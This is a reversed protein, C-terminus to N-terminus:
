YCECEYNMATQRPSTNAPANLRGFLGRKGCADACRQRADGISPISCKTSIFVMVLLAFGCYVFVKINTKM